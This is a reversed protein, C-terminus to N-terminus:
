TLKKAAGNCGCDSDCGSKPSFSRSKQRLLKLAYLVAGLVIGIVIIAQVNMSM